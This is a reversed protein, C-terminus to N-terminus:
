DAIIVIATAALYIQHHELWGILQHEDFYAISIETLKARRQLRDSKPFLLLQLAGRCMKEHPKWSKIAIRSAEIHYSYARKSALFQLTDIPYFVCKTSVKRGQLM